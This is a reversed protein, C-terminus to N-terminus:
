SKPQWAIDAVAIRRPILGQKFFADAVRQQDQV